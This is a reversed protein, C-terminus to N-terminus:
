HLTLPTKLPIKTCHWCSGIIYTLAINITWLNKVSGMGEKVVGVIKLLVWLSFSYKVWNLTLIAAQSSRVTKM